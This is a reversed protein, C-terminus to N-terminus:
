ELIDASDIYGFKVRSLNQRDFDVSLITKKWQLHADIDGVLIKPAITIHDCKNIIPKM